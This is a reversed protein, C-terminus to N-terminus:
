IKEAKKPLNLLVIAGIILIFGMIQGMTIVEGLLIAALIVNFFAESSGFVSAFSPKLYKVGAAYTVFGLVYPICSVAAAGTMQASLPEGGFILLLTSYGLVTFGFGYFNITFSTYKDSLKKVYICYGSAGTVAGIMLIFGLTSTRGLGETFINVSVMMGLIVMILALALRFSIREHYIFVSIVAVVTPYMYLLIVALSVDMFLIGFFYCSSYMFMVISCIILTKIDKKDIHFQKKDVCAIVLALALCSFLNRVIILCLPTNGTNLLAKNACGSIGWFLGSALVLILGRIEKNNKINLISNM